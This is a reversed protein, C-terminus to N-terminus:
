RRVPPRRHPVAAGEGSIEEEIYSGISRSEVTTDAAKPPPPAPSRQSGPVLGRGTLLTGSPSSGPLVPAGVSTKSGLAEILQFRATAALDVSTQSIQFRNETRIGDNNQDLPAVEGTPFFQVDNRNVVDYGLTARTTLWSAPRWNYTLGGTFREVGQNALEAFLERRRHLVLRGHDDPPNTSTEGSGTM